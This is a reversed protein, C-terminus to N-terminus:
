DRLHPVRVLQALLGVPEYEPNILQLLLNRSKQRKIFREIQIAMGVNEGTFFIAALSWPRHKSTYTNFPKTNHEIVRRYPDTSYGVYFNESASVIIYIFYPM